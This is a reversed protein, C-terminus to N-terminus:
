LGWDFKGIYEKLCEHWDRTITIDKEKLMSNRMKESAPRPASYESKFYDSDVAKIKIKEKLGLVDLLHEAVEYRSGSVGECVGHYIGYLENDLLHKIIKALDYTYCPTGFKDTVVSIEKAGNKIQKIIKNIFKKDKKPGGGMMWGARITISKDYARTALEGGFKSKGYVSLPNPIDNEDYEEKKGDFIGATCIYLYPINRLRAQEMLNYSGWLNTDYAEKLHDECYEMDTKAALNIIYDPSIKTCFNDVDQWSSVDLYTLWDENVDIDTAFVKCSDKLLGYVGEGLMGGCGTILVVSDKNIM